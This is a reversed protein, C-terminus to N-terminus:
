WCWQDFFIELFHCRDPPSRGIKAQEQGPARAWVPFRLSRAVIRPSVGRDTRGGSAGSEEMAFGATAPACEKSAAGTSPTHLSHFSVVWVELIRFNLDPTWPFRAPARGADNMRRSPRPSRGCNEYRLVGAWISLLVRPGPAPKMSWFRSPRRQLDNRLTRPQAAPYHSDVRGIPVRRGAPSRAVEVGPRELRWRLWPHMDSWTGRGM